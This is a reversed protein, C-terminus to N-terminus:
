GLGTTIRPIQSLSTLCDNSISADKEKGGIQLNIIIATKHVKMVTSGKYHVGNPGAFKDM